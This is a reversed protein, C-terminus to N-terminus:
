ESKQGHSVGNWTRLEIPALSHIQRRDGGAHRNRDLMEFVHDETSGFHRHLVRLFFPVTTQGIMIATRWRQHAIRVSAHAADSALEAFENTRWAGNFDNRAFNWRGVSKGFDFFIRLFEIDIHYAADEAAHALFNTRFLCNEQAFIVGDGAESALVHHM